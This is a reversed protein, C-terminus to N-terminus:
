NGKLLDIEAKLEKIAAVLLPIVDTYSLGLTNTEPDAISVAEPLVKKVDQAILFSRSKGQEDTVYRGTVARLSAVKNLGDLIPTLDTKLTEDSVASWGNSGNAQYVGAGGLTGTTGFYWNSDSSSKFGIHGEVQTSKLMYIETKTNAPTVINFQGTASTTGICLNGSSDIRSVETGNIQAILPAQSANSNLTTVGNADKYNITGTANPVTITNAGAGTQFALNGSTDGTFNLATGSSTGASITSAM